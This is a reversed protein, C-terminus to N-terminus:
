DNSLVVPQCHRVPLPGPHSHLIAAFCPGKCTLALSSPGTGQARRVEAPWHGMNGLHQRAAAQKSLHQLNISIPDAPMAVQASSPQVEIQPLSSGAGFAMQDSFAASPRMSLTQHSTAMHQPESRLNASDDQNPGCSANSEDSQAAGHISNDKKSPLLGAPHEQASGLQVEM